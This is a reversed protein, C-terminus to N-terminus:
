QRYADSGIRVTLPHGTPQSATLDSGAPGNVTLTRGTPGTITITIDRRVGTTTVTPTGLTATSPITAPTAEIPWSAAPEGITHGSPISVPTLTVAGLVNPTGITAASPIGTPSLTTSTVLVPTGVTVGSPIGTPTATVTTTVTPTGVTATSPITAPRAAYGITATPTGINATSPVGTPSATLKGTLTPAGVSAASPVGVPTATTPTTVTPTGVTSTSGVSAPSATVTTTVTPTGVTAASPIGTLAATVTLIAAVAGLTATSAIGTPTATVPLTTEVYPEVLLGSTPEPDYAVDDFDFVYGVGVSGGSPVGIRFGTFNTIGTNINSVLAMDYVVADTDLRVQRVRLSGDSTTTGKAIYCQWLMPTGVPAAQGSPTQAASITARAGNRVLWRGDSNLDLSVTGTGATNYFNVTRVQSSAPAVPQAFLLSLSLAPANLGNIGLGTVGSTTCAVRGGRAGYRAAAAVATNTGGLTVAEDWAFGSANAGPVITEAEAWADFTHRVTAM